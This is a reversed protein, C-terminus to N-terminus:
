RNGRRRMRLAALSGMVFLALVSPEPVPILQEPSLAVDSLRINDMNGTIADVFGGNWWGRGFTWNGTSRLANDNETNLGLSGVLQYGAGDLKDAYMALTIGDSVGALGYWKGAEAAFDSDLVYRQGGITSFNIRFRDDIGSKQFYFASELDGGIGTSGDRGVITKWGSVDDLRVSFEVTWALPSWLNLSSLTYGDQLVHRSSLGVGNATDSSYSPGYQENFGYMTHGNGSLDEAPITSFPVGATGQDFNWHAVTAAQATLCGFTLAATLGAIKVSFHHKM